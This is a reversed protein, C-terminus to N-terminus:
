SGTIGDTRVNWWRLTKTRVMRMMGAPTPVRREDDDIEELDKQDTLFEPFRSSEWEPVVHITEWDIIGTIEYTDPNVSIKALSLNHHYLVYPSVNEAAPFVWPLVDRYDSSLKEIEPAEGDCDSGWDDDGFDAHNTSAKVLPGTKMWSM